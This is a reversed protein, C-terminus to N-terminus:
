NRTQANDSSIITETIIDEVIIEETIIEETIIERNFGDDKVVVSKNDCGAFLLGFIIAIIFFIMFGKM